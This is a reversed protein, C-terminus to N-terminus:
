RDSDGLGHTGRRHRVPPGVLGPHGPALRVALGVEGGAEVVVGGYTLTERGAVQQGVLGAHDDLGDLVEGVVDVGREAVVGFAVQDPFGRVEVGLCQGFRPL